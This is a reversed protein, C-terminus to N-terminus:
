HIKLINITKHDQLNRTWYWQISIVNCIHELFQEKKLDYWRKWERAFSLSFIILQPGIPWLNQLLINIQSTVEISYIIIKLIRITKHNQLYM